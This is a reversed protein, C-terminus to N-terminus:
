FMVFIKQAGIHALCQEPVSLLGSHMSSINWLPFVSLLCMNIVLDDTRSSVRCASKFHHEQCKNCVQLFFYM